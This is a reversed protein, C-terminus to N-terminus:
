VLARGSEFEAADVLCPTLVAAAAAEIAAWQQRRLRARRRHSASRQHLPRTHDPLPIFVGLGGDDIAGLSEWFGDYASRFRHLADPSASFQEHGRVGRVGACGVARAIGALASYCFYRVSHNPFCREFAAMAEPHHNLCGQSHGVFPAIEGGPETLWSFQIHHLPLDDARLTLRLDGEPAIRSAANLRITFVADDAEHRWLELGDGPYVARRYTDNWLRSEVAYHEIVFQIRQRVSIGQRLYRRHSLHHFLDERFVTGGFEQYLPTALLRRHERPFALVQLPRLLRMGWRAVGYDVGTHRWACRWTEAIGGIVTPQRRPRAVADTM